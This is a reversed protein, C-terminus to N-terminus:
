LLSVLLRVETTDPYEALVDELLPQGHAFDQEDEDDSVVVVRASKQPKQESELSRQSM